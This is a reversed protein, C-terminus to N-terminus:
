EGGVSQSTVSVDLPEPMAGSFFLVPVASFGLLLVVASIAALLRLGRNRDPNDLGLTQFLSWVGHYLHFALLVMAVVYLLMYYWVQFTRHLNGYVEGARFRDADLTGTTFQLVHIVIFVLLLVGTVLMLRAALTSQVNTHKVYREPRAARNIVALHIVTVTHLVLSVLLVIRIIWVLEGYGFVPEGVTRLFEAYVDVEPVGEANTGLFSKLNGVMHGVVFGFLIIGTIAVIVKKGIVSGYFSVIRSM